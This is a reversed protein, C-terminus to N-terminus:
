IKQGPFTTIIDTLVQGNQDMIAAKITVGDVSNVPPQAMVILPQDSFAPRRYNVSYKVNVKPDTFGAFERTAEQLLTALLGGHIIGKHGCVNAGMYYVKTLKGSFEAQILDERKLTQKTLHTSTPFLQTQLKSLLTVEENAELQIKHKSIVPLNYPELKIGSNSTSKTSYYLSPAVLGAILLLTNRLYAPKYNSTPYNIAPLSSTMSIGAKSQYLSKFQKLKTLM